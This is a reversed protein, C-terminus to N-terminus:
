AIAKLNEPREDCRGSPRSTQVDIIELIKKANGVWTHRDQVTDSARKGIRKGIEPNDVLARINQELGKKDLPAFLMGNDNHLVVDDIPLLSPAVVPKGLGMMEFLVVPSGFENSNPLIGIDIADLYDIVDKREVPGTFIVENELRLERTKIQLDNMVPGDGILVTAIDRYGSDM